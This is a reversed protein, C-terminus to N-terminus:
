ASKRNHYARRNIEGEILLREEMDSEHIEMRYKQRLYTLRNNLDAVPTNQLEDRTIQKSPNRVDEDFLPFNEGLSNTTGKMFRPNSDTLSKRKVTKPM